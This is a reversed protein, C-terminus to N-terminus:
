SVWNPAVVVIVGHASVPLHPDHPLVQTIKPYARALAEAARQEDAHGPTFYVTTTPLQGAYNGVQAVSWGDATLRDATRQALGRVMTNNLVTVAPRSEAPHHPRAPAPPSAPGGALSAPGSTPEAGPGDAPAGTSGQTPQGTPEADSGDTPGASAAVQHQGAQGPRGASATSDATDAPKGRIALVVLVVLLVAALATLGGGANSTLFVRM